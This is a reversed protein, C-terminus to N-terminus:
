GRYEERWGEVVMISLMQLMKEVLVMIGGDRM